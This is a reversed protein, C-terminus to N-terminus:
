KNIELVDVGLEKLGLYLKSVPLGIISFFDGDVYDMLVAGKTLLGFGGALGLIGKESNVYKKIEELELKRFKLWCISHKIVESKNKTDILALGSVCGIKQGSFVQLMEIAEQKSKPKGFIKNKYFVMTDGSIIIADDYYNAVAKGKQLALFEALDEPSKNLTMDEKYDSKRIEFNYLGIQELLQKRRPSQSALVIKRSKQM